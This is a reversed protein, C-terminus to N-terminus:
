SCLFAMSTPYSGSWSLIPQLGIQEYVNREMLLFAEFITHSVPVPQTVYPEALAIVELSRLLEEIGRGTSCSVGHFARVRPFEKKFKKFIGRMYEETESRTGKRGDLHTGVLVIPAKPAHVRISNM